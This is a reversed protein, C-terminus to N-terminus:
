FHFRWATLLFFIDGTLCAFSCCFFIIKGESEFSFFWGFMRIINIHDGLWLLCTCSLSGHDFLMLKVIILGWLNKVSTFFEWDNAYTWLFHSMEDCRSLFWVFSSFSNKKPYVMHIFVFTRSNVVIHYTRTFYLIEWKKDLYFQLDMEEVIISM